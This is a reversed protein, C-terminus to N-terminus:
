KSMKLGVQKMAYALTGTVPSDADGKGHAAVLLAAVKAASEHTQKIGTGHVSEHAYEVAASVHTIAHNVAEQVAAPANGAKLAEQAEELYMLAGHGDGPNGIKETAPPQFHDFYDPSQAGGLVNLVRQMHARVWGSGKRHPGLAKETQEIALELQDHAKQLSAKAQENADEASVVVPSVMWGFALMALTGMVMVLRGRGSLEIM